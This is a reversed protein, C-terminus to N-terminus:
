QKAVNQADTWRNVKMRAANLTAAPNTRQMAALMDEKTWPEGSQLAALWKAHLPDATGRGPSMKRPPGLTEGKRLGDGTVPSEKQGIDPINEVDAAKLRRVVPLLLAATSGVLLGDVMLPTMIAIMWQLWEREHGHIILHALHAFSIAGAPVAVLGAMTNQVALGWGTLHWPNKTLIEIAIFVFLPPAGGVFLIM